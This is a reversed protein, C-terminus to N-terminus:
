DYKPTGTAMISMYDKTVDLISASFCAVALFMFILGRLSM